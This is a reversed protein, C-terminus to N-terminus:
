TSAQLPNGINYIMVNVMNVGEEVLDTHLESNIMRIEAFDRAIM